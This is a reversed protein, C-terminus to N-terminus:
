ILHSNLTTGMIDFVIGVGMAYQCVNTVSPYLTVVLDSQTDKVPLNFVILHHKVYSSSPLGPTPNSLLEQHFSSPFPTMISLNNTQPPDYAVTTNSIDSIKIATNRVASSSFKEPCELPPKRICIPAKRGVVNGKVKQLYM